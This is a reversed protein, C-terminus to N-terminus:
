RRSQMSRLAMAESALESSSSIMILSKPPAGTIRWWPWSRGRSGGPPIRPSGGRPRGIWRASHCTSGASAASGYATVASHVSPPLPPRRIPHRLPPLQSPFPSRSLLRCRQLLLISLFQLQRLPLLSVHGPSRCNYTSLSSPGSFDSPSPPPNSTSRLGCWRLTPKRQNLPSDRNRVMAFLVTHPLLLVSWNQTEKM